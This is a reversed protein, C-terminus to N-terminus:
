RIHDQLIVVWIALCGIALSIAVLVAMEEVFAKAIEKVSHPVNITTKTKPLYM